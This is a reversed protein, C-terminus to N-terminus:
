YILVCATKRIYENGIIYDGGVWFKTLFTSDFIPATTKSKQRSNANIEIRRRLGLQRSETEWGGEVFRVHHAVACEAKRNIRM